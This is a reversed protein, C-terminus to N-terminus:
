SILFTMNYQDSLNRLPTVTNLHHFNHSDESFVLAIKPITEQIRGPSDEIM